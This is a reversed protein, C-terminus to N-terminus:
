DAWEEDNLSLKNEVTMKAIVKLAHICDKAFTNEDIQGTEANITLCYTSSIFYVTKITDNGKLASIVCGKLAAYYDSPILEEELIALEIRTINNDPYKEISKIKKDIKTRITETFNETNVGGGSILAKGHDSERIAYKGNKEITCKRREPNDGRCYNNFESYAQMEDYNDAVTVEVGLEGCQIDPRESLVANKFKNPYLLKLVALVLYEQYHKKLQKDISCESKYNIIRDTKYNM